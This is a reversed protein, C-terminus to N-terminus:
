TQTVRRSVSNATETREGLLGVVIAFLPPLTARLATLALLGSCSRESVQCFLLIRM